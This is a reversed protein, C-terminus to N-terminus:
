FSRRGDSLRSRKGALRLQALKIDDEDEIDKIQFGLSNLLNLMKVNNALVEGNMLEYGRTRAADSLSTLLAHGLGQGQWKDSVVLLFECSRKDPNAVYRALGLEEEESDEVQAVAILTMESDYDIQTLRTLMEPTLRLQRISEESLQRVFSTELDVDEPRIPRITIGVGNQLQSQKCLNSPYPHIALHAYPAHSPKPYAVRIRADVAVAGNEDVILPNVDMEQIHPLECAMSSIRLLVDIIAERNAPPMNRFKGLMKSGVKTRDILDSALHRNLPPLALASDKVVEVATGGSGFTIIPGFVNDNSLGILLERGSSSKYMEEVVVGEINAGPCAHRVADNLERYTSRVSQASTINLRVGGADSKHSIDDSLIKMAIPRTQSIGISSAVILAESASRAISSRVTPVRFAGLVGYAEPETLVTRKKSLASEIIMRAGEVDPPEHARSSQAPTQLLLKQNKHYTAIFAFAEVASELTRCTPIKARKFLARGSEVQTGGMWSTIIPKTHQSALEVVAEAVGEPNTMAQPTLIVVAGDVGPDRLCIDIADRYRSPPAEGIVDVPNGHSWVSPLVENLAAYTEESFQALDIGLDTAKDAAMVGPGGGNTIIALRGNYTSPDFSSSAPLGSTIPTMEPIAISSMPSIKKSDFSMAPSPRYRSSLCKAASFMESVSEVRIVGSRSLAASFTADSGVLAGTHSMSAAAGADHRGVKLVIVPKIRAAAKLGTMFKRADQIGEIYLLISDTQPDSVLFDLYDGFDLDAAIGTSIVTSFGVDNEEAWDLIATCIAGSQSVLALRGPSANNNGFTLNIGERPRILGLCNPGIFRIGFDKAIRVVEDELKRGDSGAERFGASIIIMTKVGHEGCEQVIAPITPAPTIVVALDITDAVDGISKYAKQGQITDRKPNIPYIGGDFGAALLNRFVVEGVSNERESAGFIAISNIDFVLDIYATSIILGYKIRTCITRTCM